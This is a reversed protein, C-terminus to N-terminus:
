RKGKRSKGKGSGSGKRPRSELADLRGELAALRRELERLQDDGGDSSAAAASSGAETGSRGAAFVSEFPNSGGFPAFPPMAGTMPWLAFPNPVASAGAQWGEQGNKGPQGAVSALMRGVTAMTEPDAAMARLQDQWLDLYRRALDQPDPPDAMGASYACPRAFALNAM